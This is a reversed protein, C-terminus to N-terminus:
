EGLVQLAEDKLILVNM